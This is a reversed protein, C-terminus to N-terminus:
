ESGLHRLFLNSGDKPLNVAPLGSIKRALDRFCRSARTDPFLESVIKQSKVGRTVKDDDL